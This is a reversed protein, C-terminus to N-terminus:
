EMVTASDELKLADFRPATRAVSVGHYQQLTSGAVSYFLRPEYSRTVGWGSCPDSADFGGTAVFTDGARHDGKWVRVVQWIVTQQYPVNTTLREVEEARPSMALPRALIVSDNHKYIEEPSGPFLACAQTPGSLTLLLTTAVSGIFKPM